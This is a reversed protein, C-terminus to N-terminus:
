RAIRYVRAKTASDFLPLGWVQTAASLAERFPPIKQSLVLYDDSNVAPAAAAFAIRIPVGSYDLQIGVTAVTAGDALLTYNATVLAVSVATVDGTAM